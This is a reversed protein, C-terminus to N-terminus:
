LLSFSCHFEDFVENISKGSWIEQNRYRGNQAEIRQLIGVLEIRVLRCEDNKADHEPELPEAHEIRVEPEDDGFRVIHRNDAHQEQDREKCAERQTLSHPVILSSGLTFRKH